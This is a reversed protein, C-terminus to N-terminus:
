QKKLKKLNIKGLIIKKKKLNRKYNNDDDVLKQDIM